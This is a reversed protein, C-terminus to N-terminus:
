YLSLSVIVLNSIMSPAGTLPEHEGCCSPFRRTLTNWIYALRNRDPQEKTAKIQRWRESVHILFEASAIVQIQDENIFLIPTVELLLYTRRESKLTRKM